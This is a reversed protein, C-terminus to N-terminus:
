PGRLRVFLYSSGDSVTPGSVGRHRARTPTTDGAVWALGASDALTRVTNASNLPYSRFQRAYAAAARRAEDAPLAAQPPLQSSLEAAREAFQAAQGDSFGVATDEPESRIRNAFVLIGRAALLGAYTAFLRPRDAPSFYSLFSSTLILDFRQADRYDLINARITEVRTGCREAYWRNLELPTACLDLAVIRAEVGAARCAFLVHALASYDACGSILIRPARDHGGLNWEDLFSALEALYREPMGSLTKGLGMLRLTQWFGHYARCAPTAPFDHDDNCCRGAVERAWSASEALPEFVRQPGDRPDRGAEPM